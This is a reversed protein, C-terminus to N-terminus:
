NLKFEEDAPELVSVTQRAPEGSRMAINWTSSDRVIDFSGRSDDWHVYERDRLQRVAHTVRESGSRQEIAKLDHEQTTAFIIWHDALGRVSTPIDQPRHATILIHVLDRDTCKVLWQFRHDDLNFFSAEDVIVAIPVNPNRIIREKVAITFRIFSGDLDDDSPQFVVENVAPDVVLDSLAARLEDSRHVIEVDVRKIMRRPDIMVRKRVKRALSYVRTTKGRTRRGIVLYIM